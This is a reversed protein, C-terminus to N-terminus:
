RPPHQHPGGLPRRGLSLPQARGPRRPDAPPRAARSGRGVMALGASEIFNSLDTTMSALETNRQQLQENVTTLEENSSQLEEKMTELEENTSQLEENSSLLEEHAGRLEQTSSEQQDVISQLYERTSSLEQRLRAIEDDLEARELGPPAPAPSAEGAAPEHPEFIVLLRVETAGPVTVPMVRLTFMRDVGDEDVRLGDRVVPLGTTRAETLAKRFELFLGERVLRMLNTTPQGAPMELYPTTRGRFQQIDFDQNVLVSPPAYRGLILRDAERQFDVHAHPPRAVSLPRAPSGPILDQRM